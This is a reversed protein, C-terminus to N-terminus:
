NPLQGSALVSCQIVYVLHGRLEGTADASMGACQLLECAAGVCALAMTHQIRHESLEYKEVLRPMLDAITKEIAQKLEQHCYLLAGGVEEDSM